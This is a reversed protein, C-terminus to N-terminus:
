YIRSGNDSETPPEPTAFSQREKRSLEALRIQVRDLLDLLLPAMPAQDKLDSKGKSLFSSWEAQEAQSARVLLVEVQGDIRINSSAELWSLESVSADEWVVLLTADM